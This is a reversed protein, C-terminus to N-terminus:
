RVIQGQHNEFSSLMAAALASVNEFIARISYRFFFALTQTLPLILSRVRAEHIVGVSAAHEGLAL